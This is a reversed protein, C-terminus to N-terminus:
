FVQSFALAQKGPVQDKTKDSDEGSRGNWVLVEEPNEEGQQYPRQRNKPKWRSLTM